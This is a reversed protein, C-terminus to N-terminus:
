DRTPVPSSMEHSVKISEFVALEVLNFYNKSMGYENESLNSLKLFIM